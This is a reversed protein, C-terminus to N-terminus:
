PPPIKLLIMPLPPQPVGASTATPWAKQVLDLSPAATLVWAPRAAGPLEDLRLHLPHPRLYWAANHFGHLGAVVLPGPATAVIREIAAAAEASARTSTLYFPVAVLRLGLQAVALLVVLSLAM